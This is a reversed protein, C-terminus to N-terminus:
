NILSLSSYILNQWYILVTQTLSVLIKTVKQKVPMNSLAFYDNKPHQAFIEFTAKYAPEDFCPFARRASSPEFDTNAMM